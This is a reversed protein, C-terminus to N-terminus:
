EVARLTAATYTSEFEFVPDPNGNERLPCKALPISYGFHQAYGLVHM